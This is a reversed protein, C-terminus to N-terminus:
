VCRLFDIEQGGGSLEILVLLEGALGTDGFNPICSKPLRCVTLCVLFVHMLYM